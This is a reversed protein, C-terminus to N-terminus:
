SSHTLAEVAARFADGREIYSSFQDWSTCAPALLVVEGPRAYGAALAVASAVTGAHVNAVGEADLAAAIQTATEGVLYCRVVASKAAAAVPAFSTGKGQGGLILHVGTPEADLAAITADANTAKSDNIYRVGNVVAIEELRHPVGPFSALGAALAAAGAGAHHALAVAVMQNQRNHRGRLRVADWSAVLGLDAHSLGERGWCIAGEGPADDDVHRVPVSAGVAVGRPAIALDEPGQLAFIRLKAALYAAMDAHRDLHDPTLNLLAAGRPRLSSQDELQFSSCELVLWTGAKSADVVASLPLGQNGCAVAPIGAAALLHATLETTTTKGNTGTIALIPHDSHRLALELEGIVEVGGAQAALVQPATAPVGPSKVVLDIGPVPSEDHGRLEVGLAM